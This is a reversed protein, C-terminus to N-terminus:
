RDPSIKKLPHLSFIKFKVISCVLFLLSFNFKAIFISSLYTKFLIFSDEDFFITQLFVALLM